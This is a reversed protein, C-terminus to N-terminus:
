AAVDFLVVCRKHWTLSHVSAEQVTHQKDEHDDGITGAPAAANSGKPLGPIELIDPPCALPWTGVVAGLSRAHWVAAAMASRVVDHLHHPREALTVAGAPMAGDPLFWLQWVGPMETELSHGHAAATTSKARRWSRVGSLRTQSQSHSLGQGESKPHSLSQGESPREPASPRDGALAAGVYSDLASEAVPGPGLYVDLAGSESAVHPQDRPYFLDQWSETALDDQPLQGSIAALDIIAEVAEAVPGAPSPRATSSLEKVSRRAM